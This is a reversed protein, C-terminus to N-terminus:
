EGVWFFVCHTNNFHPEEGYWRAGANRILESFAPLIVVQESMAYPTDMWSVVFRETTGRPEYKIRLAPSLAQNVEQLFGIRKIDTNGPM